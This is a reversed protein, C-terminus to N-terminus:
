RMSLRVLYIGIIPLTIIILILLSSYIFNKLEQKITKPDKKMLDVIYEGTLCALLVLLPILVPSFILFIGVFYQAVKM